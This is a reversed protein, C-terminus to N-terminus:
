FPLGFAFWHRFFLGFYNDFFEFHKTLKPNHLKEVFAIRLSLKRLHQAHALGGDAPHHRFHRGLLASLHGDLGSNDVRRSIVLLSDLPIGLMKAFVFYASFKELPKHDRGFEV